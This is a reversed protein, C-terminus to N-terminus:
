LPVTDRLISSGIGTKEYRDFVQQSDIVDVSLGTIETLAESLRILDRNSDPRFEVILDIDSGPRDTGRATSGFIGAKRVGFTKLARIIDSRHAAIAERPMLTPTGM